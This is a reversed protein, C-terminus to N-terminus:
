RNHRGIYRATEHAAHDVVSRQGARHAEDLHASTKLSCDRVAAELNM